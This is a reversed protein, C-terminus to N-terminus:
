DNCRRPPQIEIIAKVKELNADIERQSVMFGLFKRASMSFACKGINLKMKYKRLTQFNESLNVLHQEILLSKVLIDDVYVEVNRGIQGKFMENVLRQYTTEANKLGFPM